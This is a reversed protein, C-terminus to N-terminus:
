SPSRPSMLLREIAAELEHPLFGFPGEGGQFAIRGDADILYLRDPWGGYASTVANDVGDIAIPMELHLAAACTAAVEAREDVTTPDTVAIGSRRNETLIWGDV